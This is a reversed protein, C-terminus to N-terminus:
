EPKCGYLWVVKTNKGFDYVINGNQSKHGSGTRHGSPLFGCVIRKIHRSISFQKPEDVGESEVRLSFRGIGPLVVTEGNALRNQMIDQLETVGRIFQGRSIGCNRAAEDAMETLTVEGQSVAKAFYKGYAGNRKINHKILKIHIPM